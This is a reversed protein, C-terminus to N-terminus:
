NELFSMLFRSSGCCLVSSTGHRLLWFLQDWEPFYYNKCNVSGNLFASARWTSCNFAQVGNQWRLHYIFSFLSSFCGEHGNENCKTGESTMYMQGFRYFTCWWSCVRIYVTCKTSHRTLTPDDSTDCSGSRHPLNIILSSHMRLPLTYM